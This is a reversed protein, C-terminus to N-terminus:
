FRTKPIEVWVFLNPAIGGYLLDTFGLNVKGSKVRFSSTNHKLKWSKHQQTSITRGLSILRARVETCSEQLKEVPPDAIQDLHALIHNPHTIEVNRAISNVRCHGFLHLAPVTDIMNAPNRGRGSSEEILEDHLTFNMTWPIFSSFLLDHPINATVKM